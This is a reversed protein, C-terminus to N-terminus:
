ESITGSVKEFITGSVKEFITGSVKEAFALDKDSAAAGRPPTLSTNWWGITLEMIM